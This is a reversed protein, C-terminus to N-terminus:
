REKLGIKRKFKSSNCTYTMKRSSVVWTSIFLKITCFEPLLTVFLNEIHQIQSIFRQKPNDNKVARMKGPRDWVPMCFLGDPWHYQDGVGDLSYGAKPCSKYGIYNFGYLVIFCFTDKDYKILHANTNSPVFHSIIRYIFIM